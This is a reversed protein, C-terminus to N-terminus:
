SCICTSKSRGPVATSPAASQSIQKRIDQLGGNRMQDRLDLLYRAKEPTLKKSVSGQTCSASSRNGLSSTSTLPPRPVAGRQPVLNVRPTTTKLAIPVDQITFSPDQDAIPTRAGQHHDVPQTSLPRENEQNRRRTIEATKAKKRLRKEAREASKQATVQKSNAKETAADTIAKAKESARRERGSKITPATGSIKNPM